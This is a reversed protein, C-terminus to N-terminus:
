IPIAIKVATGQNEGSNISVDGGITAIRQKMNGLGRGLESTAFGKGNDSLHITLRNDSSYISVNVKSANAHKIINSLGERLTRTINTRVLASASKAPPPNLIDWDLSLGAGLTRTSFETKIDVLLESWETFKAPDTQATDKLEALAAKAADTLKPSDSTHYIVSLKEALDEYLLRYVRQRERQTEAALNLMQQAQQEQEFKEQSQQLKQELNLQLDETEHAVEAYHKIIRWLMLVWLLSVGMPAIPFHWRWQTIEGEALLNLAYHSNLFVDYLCCFILGSCVITMLLADSDKRKRWHYFQIGLLYLLLLLSCLHIANAVNAFKNLDTIGYIVLVAFGYSIIAQEIRPHTQGIVRHGFLVTFIAWWDIASHVLWWWAKGSHPVDVIFFNLEYLSWCLSSFGFYLYFRHQTNTFAIFFVFIAVAISASFFYKNIDVQVFQRWRYIPDIEEIPGILPTALMGYGPYTYLTITLTNKGEKLASYPLSIRLPYNWHRPLPDELRHPTFLTNGNLAVSGTLSIRPLLLALPQDAEKQTLSFYLKYQGQTQRNEPHTEKWLHPLTVQQNTEAGDISFQADNITILEGWCISVWTFFVVIVKIWFAM